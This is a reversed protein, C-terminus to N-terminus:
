LEKTNGASEATHIQAMKSSVITTPHLPLVKVQAAIILGGTEAKLGSTKLWNCTKQQDVDVQNTMTPYKGYM